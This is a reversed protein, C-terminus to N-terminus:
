QNWGYRRGLREYERRHKMRLRERYKRDLDARIEALEEETVIGTLLLLKDPWEGIKLRTDPTREIGNEYGHYELYTGLVLFTEDTFSIVAQGSDYTDVVIAQITKGAGECAHFPTDPEKVLEKYM